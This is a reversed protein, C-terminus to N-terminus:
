LVDDWAAPQNATNYALNITVIRAATVGILTPAVWGINSHGPRSALIAFPLTLSAVALAGSIVRATHQRAQAAEALSADCLMQRSPTLSDQALLSPATIVTLLVARAFARMISGWNKPKLFMM